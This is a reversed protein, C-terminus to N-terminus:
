IMKVTQTNLFVTAIRINLKLLRVNKIKTNTNVNLKIRIGESLNNFLNSSSVMFRASDIIQLICSIHKAIKEGNKNIRTVEKDIRVTFIIYKDTNEGLCNFQKKSEEALEKIIFYYGDNSENHFAIPVKKTRNRNMNIISITKKSCSLAM